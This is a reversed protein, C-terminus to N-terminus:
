GASRLASAADCGASPLVCISCVVEYLAREEGVVVLLTAISETGGILIPLGAAWITGVKNVNAFLASPPSCIVIRSCGTSSPITCTRISLAAEPAACM